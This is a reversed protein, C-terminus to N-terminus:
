ISRTIGIMVNLDCACAGIHINSHLLIYFTCLIEQITRSKGRTQFGLQACMLQPPEIESEEVASLAGHEM